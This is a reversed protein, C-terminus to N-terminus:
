CTLRAAAWDGHDAGIGDGGDTIRLEMTGGGTVDATVAQAGGAGTLVGTAARLQGDVWVEFAVSGGGMEDDVGVDSRFATCRGGLDVTVRSVAHGGIGKDYEVGGVSLRRGDGAAQEGNSLDREVPGWGNALTTFPLDSVWVSGAPLPTRVPATTTTTTQFGGGSTATVTATLQYRGLDTGQPATVTFGARGPADGGVTGLDVAAPEVTWGDPAVLTAAVNRLGDACRAAVTVTVQHPTGPRVQEDTTLTVDPPCPAAVDSNPVGGAAVEAATLPRLVLDQHHPQTASVRYPALVSNPTEGMGTEGAEAHLTVWGANRVMSLQHDYEARDLDDYPTVSV